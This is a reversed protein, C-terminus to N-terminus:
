AVARLAVAIKTYAEAARTANRFKTTLTVGSSMCVRLESNEYVVAAIQTTAYSAHGGETEIEVVYKNLM